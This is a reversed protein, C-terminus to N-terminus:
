MFFWGLKMFFREISHWFGWGSLTPAQLAKRQAWQEKKDIFDIVARRSM